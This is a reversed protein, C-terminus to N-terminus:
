TVFRSRLGGLAFLALEGELPAAAHRTLIAQHGAFTEEEGPHRAIEFDRRDGDGSHGTDSADAVLEAGTGSEIADAAAAAVAAARAKAM